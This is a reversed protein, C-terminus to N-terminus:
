RGPDDVFEPYWGLKRFVYLSIAAAVLAFGGGLVANVYLSVGEVDAQVYTVVGAVAAIALLSAIEWGAFGRREM